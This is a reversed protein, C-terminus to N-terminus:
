ILAVGATDDAPMGLQLIVSSYADAGVASMLPRMLPVRIGPFAVSAAGFAGMSPSEGLVAFAEAGDATHLETVVPLLNIVQVAFARPAAVCLGM